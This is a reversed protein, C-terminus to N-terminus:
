SQAEPRIVRGKWTVTRRKYQIISAIILTAEQLVILPWLLAGILWGHRWVKHVYVGYVACFSLAVLATLITAFPSILGQPTIFALVVFPILLMLVDLLALIAMAVQNGLLPYLLRVSTILQSRWKKEYAIGFTETGILFQYEKTQALEAAIKAEPQM